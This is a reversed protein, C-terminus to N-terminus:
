EIRYVLKTGSVKGSKQLEFGDLIDDLGGSEKVPNPKINHKTIIDAIRTHFNNFWDRDGPIVPLTMGPFFEFSIGMFTYALITEVTVSKEKALLQTKEDAQLLASLKRQEGGLSKDDSFGNLAIGFSGKESITDLGISLTNNTIRKIESSAHDADKYDVVEDAGYSKVLDFNKPSATAIVKYGALKALQVAFMGVATSGGYVLYWHDGEIKAPPYEHKQRRYLVGAATIFGVGYVPADRLGVSEPVKWCTDSPVRLYQAFSGKTPFKGGHVMGAIKDGVQLKNPNPCISPITVVTGSFDCGIIAGPVSLGPISAHKWDTPNQAVYAVKVLIDNEELEPLAVEQISATKGSQDEVLARMKGPIELSM